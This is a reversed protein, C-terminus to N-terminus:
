ARQLAWSCWGDEASNLSDSPWDIRDFLVPHLEQGSTTELDFDVGLVHSPPPHKSKLIDLVTRRSDDICQDLPLSGGSPEVELLRLAAKVKGECM